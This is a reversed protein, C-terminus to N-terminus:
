RVVVEAIHATTRLISAVKVGLYRAPAYDCGGLYEALATVATPNDVEVVRVQNGPRGDAKILIEAVLTGAHTQNFGQMQGQLDQRGAAQAAAASAGSGQARITTPGPPPKCSLRRAGEEVRPDDTRMPFSDKSMTMPEIPLAQPPDAALTAGGIGAGTKDFRFSAVVLAPAAIKGQPVDFRCAGLQRSAVSRFGAASLGMVKTVAISVTDPKGDRDLKFSITGIGTPLTGIPIKPEDCKKLAFDGDTPVQAAVVRAQVFAVVVALVLPTPRM